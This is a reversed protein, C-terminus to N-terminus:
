GIRSDLGIKDVIRVMRFRWALQGPRRVGSTKRILFIPIKDAAKHTNILDVAFRKLLLSRLVAAGIGSLGDCGFGGAGGGEGGGSGKGGLGGGSGVNPLHIQLRRGSPSAAPTGDPPLIGTRKGSLLSCSMQNASVFITASTRGARGM